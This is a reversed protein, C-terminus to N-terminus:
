PAKRLTDPIKRHWAWAHAIMDALDPYRPRWPLTRAALGADAVLSAPDGPRRQAVAVKIRRGTVAEVAQILARISHGKGNGLNFIRLPGDELYALANLHAEAIDCVHTYDRVCTGDPTPYDDGNIQFAPRLGLATDFLNPIVRVGAATIEGTDRAPDAGAANFYRLAVWKLGSEAALAQEMRVKSEAYPSLPALAANENLLTSASGYVSCSSSAVIRRVGAARMAALLTHTGEVNNLRYLEPKTVSENVFAFGALHIVAEPNHRLFVEALRAGDTIDGREFPGWRVLMEYGRSLNDYAVPTHGAAALAKCIQSGIYGAGGTVLINAM